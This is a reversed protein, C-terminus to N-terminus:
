RSESASGRAAKEDRANLKRLIEDVKARLAEVELASKMLERQDLPTGCRGCYSTGPSNKESCRPCVVSAFEPRPPELAKGESIRALKEDLDAGSLHVYLAPMRSGMAWGYRVKMEADSLFKAAQTASGHRLLHNHIRKGNVGAKKALAKLRENWGTFRLRRDYRNRSECCWLPMEPRERYRYNELYRALVPASSILRVLREGTKGRVRVRAGVGDFSVDGVNLLLLEGARLGGEFGVSLMARDRPSDAARIMAEVEAPTLFEPKELESQKIAKKLWRVEEPFPTDKDTDGYRVFKMFRKLVQVFDQLTWPSYRRREGGKVVYGERLSVMLREVDQRDVDTVPKALRECIEWLHRAYKAQRGVGAGAASVHALFQGIKEKTSPDIKESKEIRGLFYKLEADFDYVAEGAAQRDAM